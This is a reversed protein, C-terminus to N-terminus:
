SRSDYPGPGPPTPLRRGRVSVQRHGFERGTADIEVGEVQYWNEGDYWVPSAWDIREVRLTLPGSGYCYDAEGFVTV